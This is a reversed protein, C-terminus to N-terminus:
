NTGYLGGGSAALLQQRADCIERVKQLFLLCDRPNDFRLAGGAKYWRALVSEPDREPSLLTDLERLFESRDDLEMSMFFMLVVKEFSQQAEFLYQMGGAFFSFPNVGRVLV